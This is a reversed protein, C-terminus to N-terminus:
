GKAKKAAQRAIHDLINQGPLDLVVLESGAWVYADVRDPSGDKARDDDSTFSCMQDELKGFGGVMHARNQEAMAAIPEARIVKGRSAHVGKYPVNRDIMRINSEVLDGGNNQEGIIRDAKWLHYQAVAERGWEDPTYFGSRDALCYLHDDFGLGVVVIGTENSQERTSVAPDIAVVIRKMPPAVIVRNKEIGARNWLAGPVDELLEAELEQRGLRTGKYKKLLNTLFTPALNDANDYTVGHTLTVGDGMKARTVLERMVTTLRPTTTVVARPDKGLRLGFLMQDYTEARSWAAIEDAWVRHHQPGRLRDPEEASFTKYITGNVLVLEGLSRNWTKILNQPICSLMGSVGEVMVDRCDAATPGILGIRSEPRSMGYWAVDEAGTRTKGWGRGAM